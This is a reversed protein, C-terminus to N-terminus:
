SLLTLLNLVISARSLCCVVILAVLEFSPPQPQGSEKKIRFQKMSFRAKFKNKVYGITECLRSSTQASQFVTNILLKM